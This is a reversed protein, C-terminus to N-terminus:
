GKQMDACWEGEGEEERKNIKKMRAVVLLLLCREPCPLIM